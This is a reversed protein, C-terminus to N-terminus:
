AIKDAAATLYENEMLELAGKDCLAALRSDLPIRALVDFGDGDTGLLHAGSPPAYIDILLIIQDCNVLYEGTDKRTITLESDNYLLNGEEDYDYTGDEKQQPIPYTLTATKEGSETMLEVKERIADKLGLEMTDAGNYRRIVFTSLEAM